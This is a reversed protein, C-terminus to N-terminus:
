RLDLIASYHLPPYSIYSVEAQVKPLGGCLVCYQDMIAKAKEVQARSPGKSKKGQKNSSSSVQQAPSRKSWEEIQDIMPTSGQYTGLYAKLTAIDWFDPRITELQGPHSICQRLRFYMAQLVGNQKSKDAGEVEKQARSQLYRDFYDSTLM